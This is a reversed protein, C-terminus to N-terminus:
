TAVTAAGHAVCWSTNDDQARRRAIETRATQLDDALKATAVLRLM